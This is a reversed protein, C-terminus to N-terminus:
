CWLLSSGASLGIYQTCLITSDFVKNDLEHV